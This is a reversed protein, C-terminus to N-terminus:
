LLATAWVGPEDVEFYFTEASSAVVLAPRAVSRDPLDQSTTVGHIDMREIVVVRGSHATFVLQTSYLTLWGPGSEAGFLMRARSRRLVPSVDEGSVVGSADSGDRTSGHDIGRRRRTDQRSQMLWFAAAIGAALLAAYMLLRM